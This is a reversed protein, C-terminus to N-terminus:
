VPLTQRAADPTAPRLEQEGLGGGAVECRLGRGMCWAHFLLWSGWIAMPFFYGLVGDYAFPGTKTFTCGGATVVAVSGVLSAKCLWAPFLPEARHDSLGVVATSVMQFALLPWGVALFGLWAADNTAQVIDPLISDPRYAAAMWFSCNLVVVLVIAEGMLMQTIAFIPARGEMKWLMIGLQATWVALFCCAVAFVLCGFLIGNQHRTFFEATEKATLSAPAINFGQSFGM